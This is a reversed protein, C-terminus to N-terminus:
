YQEQYTVLWKGDRKALKLNVTLMGFSGEVVVGEVSATDGEVTVKAKEGNFSMGELAGGDKAGNMFETFMAKDMGDGTKMDDAYFALLAPIDQGLLAKMFADMAAQIEPHNAVIPKIVPAAGARTGTVALNGLATTYEGKLTNGEVTGEFTMEMEQGQLNLKRTFTLKGNEFKINELTSEGRESSWTGSLAGNEDQKIVLKAPIEQGQFDMKVDWEGAVDAAAWASMGVVALVAATRVISKTPKM